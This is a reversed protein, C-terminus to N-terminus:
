PTFILRRKHNIIYSTYGQGIAKKILERYVKQYSWMLEGQSIKKILAAIIANPEYANLVVVYEDRRNYTVPVKETQDLTLKREWDKM